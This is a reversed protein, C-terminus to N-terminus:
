NVKSYIYYLLFVKFLSLIKSVGEGMFRLRKKLDDCHMLVVVEVYVDIDEYNTFEVSHFMKSDSNTLPWIHNLIQM